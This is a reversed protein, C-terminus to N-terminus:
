RRILGDGECIIDIVETLHQIERRFRARLKDFDAMEHEAETVEFTDGGTNIAIHVRNGEFCLLLQGRSADAARVIRSMFEPTLVYFASQPDNALIQFRKNFEANGTEFNSKDKKVPNEVVSRYTFDVSDVALNKRERIRIRKLFHKGFDCIIWPGAFDIFTPGRTGPEVGGSDRSILINSFEVKRGKYLGLFHNNGRIYRGLIGHDVLKVSKILRKSICRKPNYIVHAFKESLIDPLLSESIVIRIKNRCMFAFWYCLLCLMGSVFGTFGSSEENILSTCAMFFFFSIGAILFLLGMLRFCITRTTQLRAVKKKIKDDSLPKTNHSNNM